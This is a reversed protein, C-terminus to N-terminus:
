RPRGTRVVTPPGLGSRSMSSRAPWCSAAWAPAAASSPSRRRSRASNSGPGAVQEPAQWDFGIAGGEPCAATWLTGPAPSTIAYSTYMTEAAGGPRPGVALWPKDAPLPSAHVAVVEGSSVTNRTGAAKRAVFVRQGESRREAGGVWIDGTEQSAAVVPDFTELVSGSGPAFPLQVPSGFTGSDMMVAYSILWGGAQPVTQWAILADNSNHPNVAIVCEQQSLGNGGGAVVQEPGVTQAM